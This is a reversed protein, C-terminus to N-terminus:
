KPTPWSDAAARIRERQEEPASAVAKDLYARAVQVDGSAASVQAALEYIPWEQEDVLQIARDMSRRALALDEPSPPTMRLIAGALRTFGQHAIRPGYSSDAAAAAESAEYARAWARQEVAAEVPALLARYKLEDQMERRYREAFSAVDWSGTLVRSLPEDLEQPLGIWAIRGSRDVLYTRPISVSATDGTFAVATLGENV